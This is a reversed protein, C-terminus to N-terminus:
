HRLRSLIQFPLNLKEWTLQALTIPSGMPIFGFRYQVMFALNWLLLVVAPIIIWLRGKTQRIRRVVQTLGLAFIPASAIFMRGGFADAQWWVRWAAVLYVQLALALILSLAYRRDAQLIWFLGLSGILYIPHWTFLGHHLSFLVQLIKPDLWYFNQQPGYMYGSEGISGYVTWWAWLQVSFVLMGTTVLLAWRGLHPILQRRNGSRWLAGCTTLWQTMPLVLFLANQPRILTALGSLAGLVVWYISSTRDKRLRWWGLFVGIVGLSAMHSMSPEVVMYYIVNSAMWILVVAMLSTIEDAFELCIRYTVLLGTFGCTMSGLCVAAQYVYSYGDTPFGLLWSVAHALLFFPMWVISMGISMRNPPLGAPTQAPVGALGEFYLYENTFDLDGDIVLSHVYHYYLIGDSGILLGDARPLPISALFVLVCAVFLFSLTRIPHRAISNQLRHM